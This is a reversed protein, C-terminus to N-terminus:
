YDVSASLTPTVLFRSHQVNRIQTSHRSEMYSDINLLTLFYWRRSLEPSPPTAGAPSSLISFFGAWGLTQPEDQSILIQLSRDTRYPFFSVCEHFSCSFQTGVQCASSSISDLDLERSKSTVGKWIMKTLKYEVKKRM